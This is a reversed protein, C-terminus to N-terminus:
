TNQARFVVIWGVIKGPGNSSKSVSLRLAWRPMIREAKYADFDFVGAPHIPVTVNRMFYADVDVLPVHWSATGPAASMTLTNSFADYDWFGAGSAPVPVATALDVDYAGDGAAPVVVYGNVVNCNGTNTGNPTVATAEMHVGWNWVDNVDWKTPDPVTMQGDHLQVQEMFKLDITQVEPVARTVDAFTLAVRQGGGRVQNTLDDGAGTLWLYTGEDAPFNVTVLRGDDEVSVAGGSPSHLIVPSGLSVLPNGAHAAVVNNLTVLDESPLVDKFWIDCNDWGTNIYDLAITIASIQIERTLQTSEERANPFDTSISYTYRTSAM